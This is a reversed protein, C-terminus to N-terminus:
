DIEWCGIYLYGCSGKPSAQGIYKGDKHSVVEESDFSMKCEKELKMIFGNIFDKFEQTHVTEGSTEINTKSIADLM